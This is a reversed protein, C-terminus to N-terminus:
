RDTPPELGSALYQAPDVRAVLPRLMSPPSTAAGIQVPTGVFHQYVTLEHRTVSTAPAVHFSAQGAGDLAISYTGPAGAFRDMAFAVVETEGQLHGWGAVVPRTSGATEYLREQGKPGTDVRWTTAGRVEVANTLVVSSDENRLSGYTWRDTGFDWVWPRPGLALPMHFSLARLRQDPDDVSATVKVWSKSNPMEVTVVFPAEAGDGLAVRGSYRLEVYVPGGRIVDFAPGPDGGLDYVTGDSDEVAFGNRGPAVVEGRYSVSRFLPAATKSFRVRGVQVADVDEVLALGRGPEADTRVGPGYEVRYSRTEEPGISVNFDVRLWQVSGDPWRSGAAFQAPVEGDGVLLRVQDAEAVAGQPFPVRANVPYRTRRIGTTEEVHLNVSEGTQAEAGLPVGPLLAVVAFGAVVAARAMLAMSASACISRPTSGAAVYPEHESLIPAGKVTGPNGRAVDRNEEGGVM